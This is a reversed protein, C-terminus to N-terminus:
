AKRVICFASLGFPLNVWNLLKNEIKIINFLLSNAFNMEELDGNGTRKKYRLRKAIFRIIAVPMFLFFKWYGSKVLKFGQLLLKDKLEKRTYRRFHMNVEDHESWLTMFAPVFVLLSGGPNLLGYWHKIAKQDYQLHELCDSAIIIDFKKKVNIKQADM